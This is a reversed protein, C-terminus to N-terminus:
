ECDDEVNNNVILYQRETERCISFDIGYVTSLESIIPVIARTLRSADKPLTSVDVGIKLAVRKLDNLCNTPTDKYTKRHKMLASLCLAVGSAELVDLSMEMRNQFLIRSIDSKSIELVRGIRVVMEHFDALRVKRKLKVKKNSSMVQAITNFIAGLIRPLDEYFEDMIEEETRIESEKFRNLRILCCRDVLDSSKAVVNICTIAIISHLNIIREETNCYLKRDTDSAGTVAMCLYDSTSKPIYSVNDWCTMYSNSLRLVIADKKTPMSCVGSKKPDVIQEIKKLCQSKGSGKEGQILLCPHNFGMGCLCSVLYVALLVGDEESKVNFHKFVYDLLEQPEASFDPEVQNKFNNTRKFIFEPTQEISCVGDAVYVCINKTANLDYILAKKDQVYVRHYQTEIPVSKFCEIELISIIEAVEKDSLKDNYSDEWLIKLALRLDRSGLNFTHKTENDLVIQCMYTGNAQSCKLKESELQKRVKSELSM